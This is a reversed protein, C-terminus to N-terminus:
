LGEGLGGHSSSRIQPSPKNGPKFSLAKWSEREAELVSIRSELAEIRNERSKIALRSIDRGKIIGLTKLDNRDLFEALEEKAKPTVNIKHAELIGFAKAATECYQSRKNVKEASHYFLPSTTFRSPTPTTPLGLSTKQGPATESRPPPTSKRPTLFVPQPIPESDLAELRSTLSPYSINPVTTFSTDQEAAQSTPLDLRGKKTPSQYKDLYDTIDADRKRKVQSEPTLLGGRLISERIRNAKPTHLAPSPKISDPRVKAPEAEQADSSKKLADTPNQAPEREKAEDSWLFFGCGMDRSKPCTYFWRGHYKGGNKTEFHKAIRRPDCDCHWRGELLLGRLTEPKRGTWPPRRNPSAESGPQGSM